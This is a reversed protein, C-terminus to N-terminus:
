GAPRGALNAEVAALRAMIVDVLRLAAEGVEPALDAPPALAALDAPTLEPCRAALLARVYAARGPDTPDIMADVEFGVLRYQAL